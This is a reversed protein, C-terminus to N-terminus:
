DLRITVSTFVMSLWRTNYGGVGMFSIALRAMYRLFRSGHLLPFISPFSTPLIMLCTRLMDGTAALYRIRKALSLAWQWCFSCYWLTHSEKAKFHPRQTPEGCTAKSITSSSLLPILICTYRKKRLGHGDTIRICLSRGYTRFSRFLDFGTRKPGSDIRSHFHILFLVRVSSRRVM